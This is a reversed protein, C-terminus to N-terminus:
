EGGPETTPAEAAAEAERRAESRKVARRILVIAVIGVVGVAALVVIAWVPFGTDKTPGDIENCKEDRLAGIEAFEQLRRAVNITGQVDDTRLTEVEADFALQKECDFVKAGIALQRPALVLVASVQDVGVETRLKKAFADGDAPREAVVVFKTPFGKDKLEDAAAQLRDRDADPRTVGPEFFVDTGRLDQGSVAALVGTAGFSVLCLMALLSTRLM